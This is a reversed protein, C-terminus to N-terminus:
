DAEAFDAGGAVLLKEELALASVVTSDDIREEEESKFQLPVVVCAGGEGANGALEVLAEVLRDEHQEAVSLRQRQGDDVAARVL